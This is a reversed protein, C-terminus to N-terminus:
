LSQLKRAWPEVKATSESHQNGLIELPGNRSYGSIEFNATDGDTTSKLTAAGLMWAMQTPKRLSARPM